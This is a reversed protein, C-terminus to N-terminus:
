RHAQAAAIECRRTMFTVSKRSLAVTITRVSPPPADRVKLIMWLVATLKGAHRPPCLAESRDRRWRGNRYIALAERLRRATERDSCGPFYTAAQRLYGDREDLLLLTQPTRRGRGDCPEASAVDSTRVPKM